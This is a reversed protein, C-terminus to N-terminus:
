DRVIMQTCGAQCADVCLGCGYCLDDNVVLGTEEMTRAKFYCVEVCDGCDNCLVYDTASILDGKDCAEEPDLFYACCDDCCFCIGDTETRTENRYPRAVLHNSRALDILNLADRQDAIKKQTGSGPDDPNWMLCVDMRSRACQTRGERCGCNSIWFQSHATVLDRARELTAVYHMASKDTSVM